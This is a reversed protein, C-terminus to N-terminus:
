PTPPTTTSADEESAKEAEARLKRVDRELELRKKEDELDKVAGGRARDRRQKEAELVTKVATGVSEINAADLATNGGVYNVLAGTSPDLKATNNFSVAEVDTDGPLAAVAGYQAIAVRELALRRVVTGGSKDRKSESVILTARVPIRYVVGTPPVSAKDRKGPAPAPSAPIASKAAASAITNDVAISLSISAGSGTGAFEPPVYCTVQQDPAVGGSGYTLLPLPKPTSASPTHECIIKGSTVTKKVFNAILSEQELRLETLLLELAEKTISAYTGAGALLSQKAKRVEDLRDLVAVCKAKPAAKLDGGFGALTAVTSAVTKTTTVALEVVKSTSEISASALMGQDNLEIGYKNTKLMDSSLEIAYVHAPDPEARTAVAADEVEIATDEKPKIGYSAMREKLAAEDACTGKETVTKKVPVTVVITHRPLAYYVYRIKEKDAPINAAPYVRLGNACAAGLMSAIVVVTAGVKIKM